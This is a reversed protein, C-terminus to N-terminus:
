APRPSETMAAPSGRACQSYCPSYMRQKVSTLLGHGQGWAAEQREQM